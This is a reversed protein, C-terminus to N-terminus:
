NDTKTNKKATRKARENKWKQYDSEAKIREPTLPLFKQQMSDFVLAHQKAYRRASFPHGEEDDSQYPTTVYGGDNEGLAEREEKYEVDQTRNKEFWDNRAELFANQEEHKARAKDAAQDKHHLDGKKGQFTISSQRSVPTFRTLM